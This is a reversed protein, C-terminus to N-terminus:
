KLMKVSLKGCTTAIQQFNIFDSPLLKGCSSFITHIVKLFILKGKRKHISFPKSVKYCFTNWPNNVFFTSTPIFTTCLRHVQPYNSDLEFNFKVTSFTIRSTQPYFFPSTSLKISFYFHLFLQLSHIKKLWIKFILSLSLFHSKFFLSESM